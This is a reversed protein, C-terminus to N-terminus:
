ELCDNSPYEQRTGFHSQTDADRSSATDPPQSVPNAHGQGFATAISLWVAIWSIAYRM